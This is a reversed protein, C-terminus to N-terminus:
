IIILVNQNVAVYKLFLSLHQVDNPYISDCLNAHADRIKHTHTHARRLNLGNVVVLFFPIIIFLIRACYAVMATPCLQIAQLPEVSFMSSFEERHRADCM